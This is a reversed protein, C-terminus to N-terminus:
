TNVEVAVPYHDSAHKYKNWIFKRGADEHSGLRQQGLGRDPKKFVVRPRDLRWLHDAAYRCHCNGNFVAGPIERPDGHSASPNEESQRRSEGVVPEM